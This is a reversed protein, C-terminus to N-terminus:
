LFLLSRGKIAPVNSLLENAYVTRFIRIYQLLEPIDKIQQSGTKTFIPHIHKDENSFHQSCRTCLKCTDMTKTSPLYQVVRDYPSIIYKKSIQVAAM